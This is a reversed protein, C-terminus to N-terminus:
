IWWFFSFSLALAFAKYSATTMLKEPLPYSSLACCFSAVSYIYFPQNSRNEASALLDKIAKIENQKLRMVYYPHFYFPYMTYFFRNRKEIFSSKECDVMLPQNLWIISLGTSLDGIQPRLYIVQVYINHLSLM